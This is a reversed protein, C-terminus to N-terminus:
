RNLGPPARPVRRGLAQALSTAFSRHASLFNMEKLYRTLERGGERGCQSGRVWRDAQTVDFNSDVSGPLDSEFNSTCLTSEAAELQAATCHKLPLGALRNSVKQEVEQVFLADATPLPAEHQAAGAKFAARANPKYDLIHV